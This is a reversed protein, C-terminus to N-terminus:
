KMRSWSFDRVHIGLPNMRLEEDTTTTTAESTYVTVLARMTVPPAKPVGERDRVTEIWDVQWTDPTQPLVSQIETSVMEKAARKLPSSDSTGNLWENMKQTAPDNPSLKSYIRFIARRQLAVDISVMRADTIFEAVSAHLVRPDIKSSATVPGAAVSQGLKDVEIVYPVFKSQSGIHIIGGVAALCIMLGLIAMVSWIQRQAVVRATHDNWTRRASLYPNDDSEGKRRGGVMPENSRRPDKAEQQAPTKALGKMKEGISM